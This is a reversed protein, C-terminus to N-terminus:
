LKAYAMRRLLRLRRHIQAPETCTEITRLEGAVLHEFHLSKFDMEEDEDAWDKLLNKQPWVEKHVINATAKDLMGSKVKKHKCEDSADCAWEGTEEKNLIALWNAMSFEDQENMLKKLLDPKLTTTGTAMTIKKSKTLFQRLM